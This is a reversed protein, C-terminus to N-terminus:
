RNRNGQQIHLDRLYFHMALDAFLYLLLIVTFDVM